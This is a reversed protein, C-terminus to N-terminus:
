WLTKNQKTLWIIEPRGGSLASADFETAQRYGIRRGIEQGSRVLGEHLASSNQRRTNKRLLISFSLSSIAFLNRFYSRIRAFAM